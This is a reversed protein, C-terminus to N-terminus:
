SEDTHKTRKYRKRLKDYIKAFYAIESLPVTHCGATVTQAEHDVKTISFGGFRMGLLKGRKFGALAKVFEPYTFTIGKSTEIIASNAHYAISGPKYGDRLINSVVLAFHQRARLYTYGNPLPQYYSYESGGKAKWKILSLKAKFPALKARVRYKKAQQELREAEQIRALRLREKYTPDIKRLRGLETWLELKREPSATWKDGFIGPLHYHLEGLTQKITESERALDREANLLYTGQKWRAIRKQIRGLESIWYKLLREVDVPIAEASTHFSPSKLGIPLEIRRMHSTASMTASQHKNTTNSFRARTMVVVDRDVYYAIPTNYSYLWRNSFSISGLGNRGEEQLQHAWTHCVKDVTEFVKKM